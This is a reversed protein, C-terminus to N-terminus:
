HKVPRGLEDLFEYLMDISQKCLPDKNAAIEDWLKVAEDRMKQQEEEPVKNVSVGWNQTMDKLAKDRLVRSETGGWFNGQSIIANEIISQQETTM